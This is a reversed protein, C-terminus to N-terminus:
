ERRSARCDDCPCVKRLYDFAFIGTDHGDQWVPQLAYNGVERLDTLASQDPTLRKVFSLAGPQGWEGSCVACPCAWRLKEWDYTSRHGDSWELQLQRSKTFVSVDVPRPREM